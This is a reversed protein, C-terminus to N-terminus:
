AAILERNYRAIQTPTAPTMARIDIWNSSTTGRPTDYAIAYLPMSPHKDIIKYVQANDNDNLVVHMGIINSQTMKMKSEKLNQNTDVDNQTSLRIKVSYSLL